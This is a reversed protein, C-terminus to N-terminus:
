FKLPVLNSLYSRRKQTLLSKDEKSVNVQIKFHGLLMDIKIILISPEQCIAMFGSNELKILLTKYM